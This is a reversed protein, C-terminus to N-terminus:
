TSIKGAIVDGDRMNLLPEAMQIRYTVSVRMSGCLPSMTTNLEYM